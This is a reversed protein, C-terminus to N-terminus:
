RVVKGDPSWVAVMAYKGDSWGHNGEHGFPRNCEVQKFTDAQKGSSKKPNHPSPAGCTPMEM